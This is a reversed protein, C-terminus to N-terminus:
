RRMTASRAAHLRRAEGIRELSSVSKSISWILGDHAGLAALEDLFDALGPADADLGAPDDSGTGPDHLRIGITRRITAPDRGVADCAADLAAM